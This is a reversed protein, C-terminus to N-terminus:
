KSLLNLASERLLGVVFTELIILLIFVLIPSFDIRIRYLISSPILRRVRRFVPETTMTLFRVIPSYPDPNVWSVIVSIAVIFTYINILFELLRAITLISYGILHM